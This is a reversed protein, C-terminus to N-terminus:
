LRAIFVVPLVEIHIRLQPLITPTTTSLPSSQYHNLSADLYRGRDMDMLSPRLMSGAALTM